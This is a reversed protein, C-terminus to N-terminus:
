GNMLVPNGDKHLDCLLMKWVNEEALRWQYMMQSGMVAYMICSTIVFGDQLDFAFVIKLVAMLMGQMLLASIFSCLRMISM